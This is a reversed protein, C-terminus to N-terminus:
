SVESKSLYNDKNNRHHKTQRVKNNIYHKTPM